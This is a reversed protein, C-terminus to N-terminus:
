SAAGRHGAVTPPLATRGQPVSHRIATSLEKAFHKFKRHCVSSGVGDTRIESLRLTPLSPVREPSQLYASFV